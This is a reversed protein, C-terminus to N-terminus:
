KGTLSALFHAGLRGWSAGLVGWSEWSPALIAGLRAWSAGLVGWSAGLLPFYPAGNPISLRNGASDGGSRSKPRGQTRNQSTKPNIKPPTLQFNRNNESQKPWLTKSAKQGDLLIGFECFDYIHIYNQPTARTLRSAAYRATRTGMACSTELIIGLSKEFSKKLVDITRSTGWPRANPKRKLASGTRQWRCTKKNTKWLSKYTTQDWLPRM